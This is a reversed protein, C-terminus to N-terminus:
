TKGPCILSLHTQKVSKKKCCERRRTLIFAVVALFVIAVLASETSISAIGWNQVFIEINLM